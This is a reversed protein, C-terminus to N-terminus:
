IMKNKIKWNSIFSNCFSKGINKQLCCLDKVKQHIYSTNMFIHAFCSYDNNKWIFSLSFKDWIIWWSSFFFIISSDIMWCIIQIIFLHFSNNLEFYDSWNLWFLSSIFLSQFLFIMEDEKLLYCKQKTSFVTKNIVLHVNEIKKKKKDFLFHKGFM